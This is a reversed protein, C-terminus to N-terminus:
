GDYDGGDCDDSSNNGTQLDRLSQLENQMIKLGYRAGAIFARELQNEFLEVFTNSFTAGFYQSWKVDNRDMWNRFEKSITM